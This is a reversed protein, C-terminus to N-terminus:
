RGKTHKGRSSRGRKVPRDQCRREHAACRIRVHIHNDHGGRHQILGVRSSRPRPYSFTRALRAKNWGRRRAERYLPQQLDRDLFIKLITGTGLLCSVYTFTRRADIHKIGVRWLGGLPRGSRMYFGIDAERGNRHGAHPPMPGGKRRSLDGVMLKHAWKHRRRVVIACQQVVDLLRRTGWANKPFRLKIHKSGRLRSANLLHGANPAGVSQQVPTWGAADAPGTHVAFVFAPLTTFLLGLAAQRV